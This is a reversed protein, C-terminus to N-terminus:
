KALTNGDENVIFIDPKVQKIEDIFDLLGSGSNIRCQKVCSLAELMYKREDQNNVPYRGKLASVTSDSGLGVYVDGYQAAEQLFAIHGSHLLDFCGTVFVIKGGM